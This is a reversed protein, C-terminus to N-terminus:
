HAQRVYVLHVNDPDRDHLRQALQDEYTTVVVQRLPGHTQTVRSLLNAVDRRTDPALHELPEDFWCFSASTAMQVVLLRLLLVAGTSEGASFTAFPLETEGLRRTITGGPTTRVEGRQPFLTTWRQTIEKALPDITGQLLETVTAQAANKAAELHAAETWLAALYQNASAATLEADLQEQARRHDTSAEILKQRADRVADVLDESSRAATVGDNALILAPEPPLSPVQQAASRLERITKLDHLTQAEDLALTENTQRLLTIDQETSSHALAVTDEDLPRRCVPCDNHATDLRERNAELTEIRSRNIGQEVQLDRLSNNLEEDREAVIANLAAPEISRDFVTAAATALTEMALDRRNKQTAWEDHRERANEINRAQTAEADVAALEVERQQQLLRTAEVLEQLDSMHAPDAAHAAKAAKIAKDNERLRVTLVEIADRLSDVGYIRGLHQELGIQDPKTTAQERDGFPVLLRSLFQYNAAFAESLLTDIQNDAIPEGNLAVTAQTTRSIRRALARRIRLAGKSGLDLTVEVAAETAGIRVADHPSSGGSVLGFIAWRVAEVLSTKGIGNAAVIFTAGPLLDLDLEEYNRWNRIQVHTIM